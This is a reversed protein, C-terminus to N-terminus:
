KADRQGSMKYLPLFRYYVELCLASLATSYVRGGYRGWPGKPDWSGENAGSTTQEAVLAARVADNWQKWEGGGYQFMALTGYYWYYLNLKSRRPKRALLYEAAEKSAPHNRPIRFIQKCFLAEATMTESVKYRKQYSALGKNKGSSHDLLFQIMKRKAADPVAIGATEASKLAMLQWGFMSVDSIQGKLYRWGGDRTSQTELIYAVAKALPKRLRTDVTPDSQMGYAEGMAYTAMGHCYM